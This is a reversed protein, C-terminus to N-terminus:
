KHRRGMIHPHGFISVIEDSGYSSAIDDKLYILDLMEYDTKKLKRLLHEDNAYCM